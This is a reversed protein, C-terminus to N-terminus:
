DRHKAEDLQRFLDELLDGVFGEKSRASLRLRIRDNNVVAQALKGRETAVAQKLEKDRQWPLKMM